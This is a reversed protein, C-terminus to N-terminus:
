GILLIDNAKFTYPPIALNRPAPGKRIRGSQDYHSGHCPCFWGGYDGRPDGDKQGLPICGLHTCVGIAVLWEAKQVREEDTQPDRLDEITESRIKQVSTESRHDIFVPKGRWIVTIRQDIEILSIDVETTALAAVDAAPMMSDIFPWLALGTGSLGVTTTGLLLVDRRNPQSVITSM